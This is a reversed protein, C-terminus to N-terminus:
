EVRPVDAIRFDGAADLSFPVAISGTKPHVCFPSKLLHNTATTVNSDLRPNLRDLLFKRLFMKRQITPEQPKKGESRAKEYTKEDCCDKLYIWFSAPDETRFYKFKFLFDYFCHM